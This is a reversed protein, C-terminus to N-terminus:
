SSPSETSRQGTVVSLTHAPNEGFEARYYSAFRGLNFFGWRGAVGAVTTAHDAALLEARAHHLRVKRLYAMPTTALQRRFGYQLARPTVHAAEAIDSVTIDSHASTEIFAVARLVAGSGADARDRALQASTPEAWTDNAFVSLATHAALQTLASLALQERLLQPRVAATQAVFDVLSHWPAAAPPTPVLTAFRVVGDGETRDRVARRLVAEDISVVREHVLPGTRVSWEEGPQSLAVVTGRSSRDTGGRRTLEAWGDRGEVIKLFGTPVATGALGVHHEVEDVVLPGLDERAVRVRGPATTCRVDAGFARQMFAWTEEADDTEFEARV